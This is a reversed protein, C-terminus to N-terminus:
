DLPKGRTEPTFAFVLGIVLSIAMVYYAVWESHGAKLFTNAIIPATGGFIASCIAYPVGIGSTRVKTPFLECFLPAMVGDYLGLLVCGVVDVALFSMFDGNGLLQFMPYALVFFGIVAALILPKRGIRDSLAGALPLTVCFAALAIMSGVFGQDLPLKGAQNAYGPLFITWLYFMVTGMQM